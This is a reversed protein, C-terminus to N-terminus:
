WSGRSEVEQRLAGLTENSGLFVDDPFQRHALMNSYILGQERLNLGLGALYQLRLDRDRNIAADRLWPTLDRAHGAYTGLLALASRAGIQNLSLAVTSYRPSQLKAEMADVDIRLPEKM